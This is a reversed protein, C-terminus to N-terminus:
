AVLVVLFPEKSYKWLEKSM